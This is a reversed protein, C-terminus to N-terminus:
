TSFSAKSLSCLLDLACAVLTAEEGSWCAGSVPWWVRAVLQSSKLCLPTRRRRRRRRRPSGPPFVSTVFEIREKRGFLTVSVSCGDERGGGVRSGLILYFSFSLARGGETLQQSFTWACLHVIGIKVAEELDGDLASGINRRM